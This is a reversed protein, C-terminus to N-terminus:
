QISQQMNELVISIKKWYAITQPKAMGRPGGNWTRAAEEMSNCECCHRLFIERSVSESMLTSVSYNKSTSKNYDDLKCQRIQVIGYAGELINIMFPNSESEVICTAEWLDLWPNIAMPVPIIVAKYDPAFVNLSLLFFAIVFILRM